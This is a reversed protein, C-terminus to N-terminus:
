MPLHDHGEKRTSPMWMGINPGDRGNKFIYITSQSGESHFWWGCNYRFLFKRSNSNQTSPKKKQAKLQKLVVLM